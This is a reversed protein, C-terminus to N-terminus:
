QIERNKDPIFLEITTGNDLESRLNINIGHFTAISKVIALGLGHGEYETSSFKIFRNFIKAVQEPSMGIGTDIISITCGNTHIFSSLSIKGGQKNYKLANAVLNLFMTQMLGRNCTLFIDEDIINVISVNKEHLRDELDEIIDNVLAAIGVKENIAFQANEIKSIMLLSNIMMRMREITKLSLFIRDAAEDSLDPMNIMIEFRSKLISLPTLMEHSANAIFQKERAFTENIKEMTENLSEDLLRFDETSTKIRTFDFNAPHKIKKLKKEIISYFPRLLYKAFAIDLFMSLAIGFTLVFFSFLWIDKKLEDAEELTAGIELGYFKGEYNFFNKLVRFTYIEGEIERREDVFAMEVMNEPLQEVISLLIFEEKLINYSSFNSNDSERIMHTVENKSLNSIFKEKKSILRNNINERILSEIRIPMTIGIIIIIIVKTFANFFALKNQLKM